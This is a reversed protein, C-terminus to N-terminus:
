DFPTLMDRWVSLTRHLLSPEDRPPPAIASRQPFVPGQALTATLLMWAFAVVLVAAAFTWASEQRAKVLALAVTTLTNSRLDEPVPAEAAAALARELSEEPSWQDPLRMFADSM